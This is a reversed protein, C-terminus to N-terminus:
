NTFKCQLLVGKDASLETQKCVSMSVDTDERNGSSETTSGETNDVDSDSSCRTPSHHLPLPPDKGSEAPNDAPM